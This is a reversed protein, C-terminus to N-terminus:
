INSLLFQSTHARDNRRMDKWGLKAVLDFQAREALCGHTKDERRVARNM